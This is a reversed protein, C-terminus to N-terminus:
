TESKNGATRAIAYWANLAYNIKCTPTEIRLVTGLFYMCSLFILTNTNTVLKNLITTLAETQLLFGHERLCQPSSTSTPCSRQLKETLM